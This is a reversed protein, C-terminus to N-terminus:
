PPAATALVDAAPADGGAVPAGGGGRPTDLPTRDEKAPLQGAAAAAALRGEWAAVRDASSALAAALGDRVRATTAAVGAADAASAAPAIGSVSRDLTDLLPSDAVRFKRAFLATSSALRGAFMYASSDNPETDDVYYPHQVAKVGRHSWVVLRLHNTVLSRRWRATNTLLTVFFHESAEISLGFALLLRRAAASRVTYEVFDRHLLMWAESKRATWEAAAYLPNPIKMPVVATGNEEGGFALSTDVYLRGIRQETVTNVWTQPSSVSAFNAGAGAVGPTALLRRVTDPAVLPYDAASLNVFYCWGPHAALLFEMASLVNLVMSIGRYTVVERPMFRVAALRDDARIAAVVPALEADPIKRDFHVAYANAPHALARLLRPLLPLNSESVQIFYAVDVEGRPRDM